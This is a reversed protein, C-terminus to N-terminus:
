APATAGIGALIAPDDAMVTVIALLSRTVETLYDGQVDYMMDQCNHQNARQESMEIFRVAPYGADSFSLHDGYRGSRDATDQVHITMEDGISDTAIATIIAALQRSVASEPDAFLRIEHSHDLGDGGTSSGIIDLNIMAKVPIHNRAVFDHVFAMSGSGRWQGNANRTGVEEASFAVLMIRARHPRQSLIRALEILAAVGSANDDVGPAASKSDCPDVTRSDYHAGIIITGGELNTDGIVGVINRATTTQNCTTLEFYDTWAAFNGNSSRSIDQFQGLIYNYAAGIGWNPNTYGSNVHRTGVSVLAQIHAMMRTEDVQNLMANFGTSLPAPTATASGATDAQPQPAPEQQPSDALSSTAVSLMALLALGMIMVRHPQISM